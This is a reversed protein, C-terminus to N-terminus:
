NLDKTLWLILDDDVPYKEGPIVHVHKHTIGEGNPKYGLQFYLKQAPGYDQYLGVGIGITQCGKQRALEELHTILLTGMGKKRYGDYIWLDCIEPINSRQFIPHESHVLLHGYGAIKGEHELICAFRMGKKQEEWYRTWLDVTKQKTSWPFVLEALLDIDEQKLTRLSPTKHNVSRNTFHLAMLIDDIYQSGVKVRNKLRGEVHFGLKKYLAIARANTDRVNLEIKEIKGSQKAWAILKEMLQTGIGQEQFGTHVGINLQAVHRLSQLPFTELFAHGVIHGEKEAVLYGGQLSEITQRVKEESIESPLSCFYGPEQAIEQAACTIFPADETKAQRITLTM